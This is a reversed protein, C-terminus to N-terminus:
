RCAPRRPPESEEALRIPECVWGRRLPQVAILSPPTARAWARPVSLTGVSTGRGFGATIAAASVARPTPLLSRLAAAKNLSNLHNIAFDSPVSLSGLRSLSTTVPSLSADFTTLPSSALAELARPITSIVQCGASIVAPAAQLAWSVSAATVASDHGAPGAAAPPSTFPTLTSADASAGAYAHMADADQTWMQEYDADTDAIDPTTQGLCNTSALSEWQARNADILSPPVMAALATEYACAAAKAQAATQQAQAAAATLWGQYLAATRTMSIAAPGQWGEALKATVSGYDAAVDYLNASLGDWATAVAMMSGSGPGSYMRGSNIEPPRMGFDMAIESSTGVPRATHPTCLPM